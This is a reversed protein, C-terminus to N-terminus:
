FRLTMYMTESVKAIKIWSKHGVFSKSIHEALRPWGREVKKFKIDFSIPDNKTILSWIIAFLKQALNYYGMKASIRSLSGSSFFITLSFNRSNSTFILVAVFTFKVVVFFKYDNLFRSARRYPCLSIGACSLSATKLLTWLETFFM